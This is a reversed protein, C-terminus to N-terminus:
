PTHHMISTDLFQKMPSTQSHCTTAQRSNKKIWLRSQDIPGLVIELAIQIVICFNEKLYVCKFIDDAFHFSNQNVGEYLLASLTEM